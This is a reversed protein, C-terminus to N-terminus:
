LVADSPPYTFLMMRMLKCAVGGALSKAAHEGRVSVAFFTERIFFSEGVGSTEVAGTASIPNLRLLKRVTAAASASM